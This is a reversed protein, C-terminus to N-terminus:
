FLRGSRPSFGLPMELLVNAADRLSPETLWFGQTGLSQFQMLLIPLNPAYLLAAIVASGLLRWLDAKNAGSLAWTVLLACGLVIGFIVGFNHSWAVLAIGIGLGTHAWFLAGRVASFSSSNSKGDKSSKLIFIASALALAFGLTMLTYPRADQSALIQTSSCAFLLSALITAPVRNKPDGLSYAAFAVIPITLVNFVVSLLRLAFESDSIQSWMKLISYYFVPHTEYEPVVTWLYNWDQSSFWVSYAEDIWLSLAGLQFVRVIVGLLMIASLIAFLRSASLDKVNVIM